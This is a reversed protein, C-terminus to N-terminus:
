PRNRQTTSCDWVDFPIDDPNIDEEPHYPIPAVGVAGKDGARESPRQDTGNEACRRQCPGGAGPRPGFTVKEPVIDTRYM